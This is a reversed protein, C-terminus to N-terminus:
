TSKPLTDVLARARNKTTDPVLVPMPKEIPRGCTRKESPDTM